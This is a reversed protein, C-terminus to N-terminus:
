EGLFSGQEPKHPPEPYGHEAVWADLAVNVLADAEVNKDRRV